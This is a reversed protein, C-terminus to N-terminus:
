MLKKSWAIEGKVVGQGRHTLNKTHAFGLGTTGYCEATFSPDFISLMDDFREHDKM